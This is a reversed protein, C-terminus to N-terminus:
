NLLPGSNQQPEREPEEQPLTNERGLPEEAKHQAPAPATMLAEDAYKKVARNILIIVAACVSVAVLSLLLIKKNM